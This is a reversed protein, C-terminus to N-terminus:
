RLRGQCRLPIYTMIVFINNNLECPRSPYPAAATLRVGASRCFGICHASAYKRPIPFPGSPHSYQAHMAQHKLHRFEILGLAEVASGVEFHRLQITVGIGAACALCLFRDHEHM